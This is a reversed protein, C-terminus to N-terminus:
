SNPNTLTEACPPSGWGSALACLSPPVLFAARLPTCLAFRSLPSDVARSRTLAPSPSGAWRSWAARDAAVAARSRHASIRGMLVLILIVILMLGIMGGPTIGLSPQLAM